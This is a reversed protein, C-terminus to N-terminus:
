AFAMHKPNFVDAKVRARSSASRDCVVVKGWEALRVAPSPRLLLGAPNPVSLQGAPLAWVVGNLASAGSSAQPCELHDDSETDLSNACRIHHSAM